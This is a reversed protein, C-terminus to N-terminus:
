KMSYEPSINISLTMTASYGTTSKTTLLMRAGEETLGNADVFILETNLMEVLQLLEHHPLVGKMKWLTMTESIREENLTCNFGGSDPITSDSILAQMESEFEPNWEYTVVKDLLGGAIFQAAAYFLHSAEPTFIFYGPRIALGIKASIKAGSDNRKGLSQSGLDLWAQEQVSKLLGQEPGIESM